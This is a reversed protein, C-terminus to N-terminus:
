DRNYNNVVFQLKKLAKYLCLGFEHYPMDIIVFSKDKMIIRFDGTFSVQKHIKRKRFWSFTGKINREVVNVFDFSEIQTGEIRKISENKKLFLCKTTILIWSSDDLKMKLVEIDNDDIKYSEPELKLYSNNYFFVGKVGRYAELAKIFQLRIKEKEKKM